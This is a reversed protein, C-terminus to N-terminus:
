AAEEEPARRPFTSYARRCHATCYPRGPVRPNDCFRGDPRDQDDWLPWCCGNRPPAARSAPPAPPEDDPM